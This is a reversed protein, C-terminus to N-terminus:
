YGLSNFFNSLYIVMKLLLLGIITGVVNIYPAKLSIYICLGVLIYRIFYRSTTYVQAKKPSMQIAKNLTLYLLRFNLLSLTLGFAVGLIITMPDSTFLCLVIVLIFGIGVRKLIEKISNDKNSKM